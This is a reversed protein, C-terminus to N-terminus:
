RVRKAVENDQDVERIMDELKVDKIGFEECAQQLEDHTIYDSGDKDLYSFAVAQMLAYFKQSRSLLVLGKWDLRSNKLHKDAWQQIEKLGAIEDESLHEAIVRIVMNKLKNMASFQRLRYLVAYDLPKDPAVGDIVAFVDLNFYLKCLVEPSTLRKKPDLIKPVMRFAPGHIQSFTLNATYFRKLYVKSPKRTHHLNLCMNTSFIMSLYYGAWFSSYLHDSWCELCRGRSWIM